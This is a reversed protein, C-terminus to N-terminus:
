LNILEEFPRMLYALVSGAFPQFLQNVYGIKLNKPIILLGSQYHEAGAIIKLLTSKGSGNKGVLALHEGIVIELNLEDLIIEETYIKTLNNLQIKM